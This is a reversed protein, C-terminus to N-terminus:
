AAWAAELAGRASPSNGSTEGRQRGRRRTLAEQAGRAIPNCSMVYSEGCLKCGMAEVELECDM